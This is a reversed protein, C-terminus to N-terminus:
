SGAPRCVKRCPSEAFDALTQVTSQSGQSHRKIFLMVLCLYGYFFQLRMWSIWPLTVDVSDGRRDHRITEVTCEQNLSRRAVNQGAIMPEARCRRLASLM